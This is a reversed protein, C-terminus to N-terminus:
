FISFLYSGLIEDRRILGIAPWRSDRSNNRNDGLVFYTGEEVTLPFETGLDSYTPAKVYPEDLAEGNRYVVGQDFDIDIIDGPMGVIRKIITEDFGHPKCVIIQGHQLTPAIHNGVVIEGDHLTPLMSQGRVFYINLVVGILLYVVVCTVVAERLFGMYTAMVQKWMPLSDNIHDSQLRPGVKSKEKNLNLIFKM